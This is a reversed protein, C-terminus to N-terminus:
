VQRDYCQDQMEIMAKYMNDCNLYKDSEQFVKLMKQKTKESARVPVVVFGEPVAPAKAAQWAAGAEFARKAVNFDTDILIGNEIFWAEFAQREKQLDM